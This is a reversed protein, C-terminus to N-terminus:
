DERSSRGPQRRNPWWSTATRRVHADLWLEDLRHSGDSTIVHKAGRHNSDNVATGTMRALEYMRDAFRGEGREAAADGIAKLAIGIRGREGRAVARALELM